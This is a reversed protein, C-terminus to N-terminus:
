HCLSPQRHVQSSSLVERQGRRSRGRREVPLSELPGGQYMDQESVVRWNLTQKGTAGLSNHPAGRIDVGRQLSM